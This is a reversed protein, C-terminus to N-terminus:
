RLTNLMHVPYIFIALDKRRYSIATTIIMLVSLITYYVNVIFHKESRPKLIAGIQFTLNSVILM